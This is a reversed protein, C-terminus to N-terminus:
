GIRYSVCNGGPVIAIKEWNGINVFGIYNDGNYLDVKKLGSWRRFADAHIVLANSSWLQVDKTAVVIKEM